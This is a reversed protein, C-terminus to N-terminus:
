SCRRTVRNPAAGPDLLISAANYPIERIATSDSRALGQAVEVLLSGVHAKGDAHHGVDVLNAEEAV